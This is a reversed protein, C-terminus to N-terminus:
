VILCLEVDGIKGPFDAYHKICFHGTCVMVLDFQYHEVNGSLRDKTTLSWKGSSSFDCAKALREVGINYRIYKELDFTKAYQRLYKYVYEHHLFTPFGDPPPCDSFASMEKSSKMVTSRAVAGKGELVEDTYRWIGGLDDTREFCVPILGAELTSKIAALGSAGAGIIAVRKSLM